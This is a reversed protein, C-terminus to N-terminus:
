VRRVNGIPSIIWYKRTWSWYFFFMDSKSFFFGVDLYKKSADQVTLASLRPHEYEMPHYELTTVNEAGHFLLLAEIWPVQTGVVLARRGRVRGGSIRDDGLHRSLDRVDSKFYMECDFDGRAYSELRRETDSAPWM